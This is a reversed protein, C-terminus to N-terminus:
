EGLILNSKKNTLFVWKFALPIIMYQPIKGALKTPVLKKLRRGGTGQKM